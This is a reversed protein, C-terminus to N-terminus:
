ASGSVRVLKGAFVALIGFVIGSVAGILPGMILVVLAPHLGQPLANLAEVMRPNNSLYTSIFIAQIAATLFGVLIGLYFGHLFLDSQIKRAFRWACFLGVFFWTLWEYGRTLGLASTLGIPISFLSLVFILRWNMFEALKYSPIDNQGVLIRQEIQLSREPRNQCIGAPCIPLRDL